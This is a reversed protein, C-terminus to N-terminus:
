SYHVKGPFTRDVDKEVDDAVNKDLCEMSAALLQSYYNNPFRKKYRNALSIRMWVAPRFAAPIGRRCM